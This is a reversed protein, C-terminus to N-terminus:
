KAKKLIVVGRGLGQAVLDITRTANLSITTLMRGKCDYITWDGTPIEIKAARGAIRILSNKKTSIVMHKKGMSPNVALPGADVFGALAFILAGQWNIAIENTQYNEQDDVWSMETPHGGGVLYGPWPEVVADGGSRRDHPNKPPNIGIGTVFSRCYYNRGFLYGIADLCGNLYEKKPEFRNAIQMLMTQRAISGNCGWYHSSWLTRGYLHNNGRAAVTDAALLLRTKISDYLSSRRGERRSLMYTYMALNKINSWDFDFDVKVTQAGARTEFDTLYKDEGTTEWMEAAAWLRDDVDGTTYGGTTFGTQDPAVTQPNAALYDYSKKAAALCSDAHSAIYPKFMRAAMAMMGVFDATAASGWPVFYRDTIESHPLVFGGFDTTSVKHSVTGNDFQMSFLWDIEWKIEALFDPLTGGSEPIDLRFSEISPKFLHWAHFLMGVTIGANVTYKNYDGADHWGRTANRIVRTNNIYDMYADYTHCAPHRYNNGRYTASVTTGCRMLYMGRIATYYASDYVKYGIPFVPTRGVGNVSLYYTGPEDLVSFDAIFIDEDTDGDRHPGTVTGSFAASNDSAKLVSFQTCSVNISARKNQWPIFGLSNIRINTDAAFSLTFAIAPAIIAIMLQRHYM